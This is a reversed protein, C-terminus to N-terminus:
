SVALVLPDIGQDCLNISLRLVKPDIKVGMIEATATLVQMVQDQTDM